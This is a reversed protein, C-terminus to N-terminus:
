PTGAVKAQGETLTVTYTHADLDFMDLAEQIADELRGEFPGIMFGPM